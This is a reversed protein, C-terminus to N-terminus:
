DKKLGKLVRNKHVSDIDGKRVPIDIDDSNFHKKDNLYVGIM